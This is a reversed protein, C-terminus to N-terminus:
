TTAVPTDTRSGWETWSGDYLAGQPLGAVVLGLTLVAATLGTGCSTIIPRTGDVGAAQFRARVADPPLMTGDISLLNSFPLNASGPIHGGRVGPRPEPATARFRSEARADVVLEHGTELNELIDGLGRLRTARFDARYTTPTPAPSPAATVSRGERQWKPLGGDLVAVRGQNQGHGFLTFLWWGRPASYIGKQDYFVVLSSNTVGMAGILAEFRGPTPVMHPLLTADDAIHDVDFYHAGPIHARRFENAGDLGDTPLYKTADFLIINPDPLAAALEDTSILPSKM